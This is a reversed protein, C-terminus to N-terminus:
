ARAQFVYKEQKKFSLRNWLSSEEKLGLARLHACVDMTHNLHMPHAKTSGAPVDFMFRGGRSLLSALFSLEGPLDPLHELVDFSFVTDFGQKQAAAALDDKTRAFEVALSRRKARWRAFAMSAGEVDYYTVAHGQRALDLLLEGNGAGYDLCRGRAFQLVYLNSRIRRHELNYGSIAFMYLESNDRYWQAMKKPDDEGPRALEWNKALQQNSTLWLQRIKEEPYGTFGTLESLAAAINKANHQQAGHTMWATALASALLLAIAALISEFDENQRRGSFWLLISGSASVAATWAFSRKRCIVVSLHTAAILMAATPLFPCKRTLVLAAIVAFDTLWYYAAAHDPRVVNRALLNAASLATIALLLVIRARPGSAAVMGIILAAGLVRWRIRFEWRAPKEPNVTLHLYAPTYSLSIALAAVILCFTIAGSRDSANAAPLCIAALGALVLACGAAWVQSHRLFQRQESYNM